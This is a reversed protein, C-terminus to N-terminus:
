SPKEVKRNRDISFVAVTIDDKVATTSSEVLLSIEKVIEDSKKEIRSLFFDQLYVYGDDCGAWAEFFDVLGDSYFLIRDGDGISVERSTYGSESFIGLLTGTSELETITESAASYHLPFDHGASSYRFKMAVLDFVGWLATSNFRSGAGLFEKLSINVGSMLVAPDLDLTTKEKFLCVVVAMVLAAPVGKGCVDGILIGLNTRSAGEVYRLFDGGIFRAPKLYSAVEIGEVTPMQRPMAGDQVIRAMELERQLQAQRMALEEARFALEKHLRYNHLCISIQDSLIDLRFNDESSLESETDRRGVLMCGYYMNNRTLATGALAGRFEHTRFAHELLKFSLKMSDSTHETSIEDFSVPNFTELSIGASEVAIFSDKEYDMLFLVAWDFRGLDIVTELIKRYPRSDQLVQLDDLSHAMEYFQCVEKLTNKESLYGKISVFIAALLVFVAVLAIESSRALVAM